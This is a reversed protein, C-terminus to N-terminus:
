FIIKNYYIRRIINKIFFDINKDKILKISVYKNHEIYFKLIM